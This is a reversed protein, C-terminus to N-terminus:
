ASIEIVQGDRISGLAALVSPVLPLLDERANSQALMVIVGISLRAVRQQFRLNKDVTLLVQHGTAALRQLLEGNRMGSYGLEVVTAVQHGSFERRLRKPVCEDLVIRM